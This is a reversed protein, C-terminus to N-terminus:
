VWEKMQIFGFGDIGKKESDVDDVTYQEDNM